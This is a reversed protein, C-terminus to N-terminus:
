IAALPDRARRRAAGVRRVLKAHDAIAAEAVETTAAVGHVAFRAALAAVSAVPQALMGHRRLRVLENVIAALAVALQAPSDSQRADGTKQYRGIAEAAYALHINMAASFPSDPRGRSAANIAGYLHYHEDIYHVAVLTAVYLRQLAGDVGDVAVRIRALLGDEVTAALQHLLGEKSEFYWFVLGKAVGAKRAIDAVRTAEYGETGFLEAAARLIDRRRQANLSAAGSAM